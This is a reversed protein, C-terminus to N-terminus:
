CIVTDAAFYKYLLYSLCHIQLYSYGFVLWEPVFASSQWVDISVSYKYTHIYLHIYGSSVYIQFCM